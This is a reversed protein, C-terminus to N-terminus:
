GNSARESGEGHQTAVNVMAEIADLLRFRSEELAASCRKVEEKRAKVLEMLKVKAHSIAAAESTFFDYRILRGCHTMNPWGLAECFTAKVTLTARDFFWLPISVEFSDTAKLLEVVQSPDASLERYYRQLDVNERGLTDDGWSVKGDAAVVMLRLCYQSGILLQDGEMHVLHEIRYKTKINKWGM